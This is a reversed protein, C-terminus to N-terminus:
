AWGHSSSSRCSLTQAALASSAALGELRAILQKLEAEVLLGTQGAIRVAEQAVRSQESKAYSFVALAAFAILPVVVAAVLGFLHFRTSYRGSLPRLV